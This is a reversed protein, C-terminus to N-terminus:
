RKWSQKGSVFMIVTVCAMRFDGEKTYSHKNGGHPEKWNWASKWIEQTCYVWHMYVNSLSFDCSETNCMETRTFIHGSKRIPLKRYENESRLSAAM